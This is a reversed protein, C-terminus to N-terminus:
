AETNVRRKYEKLFLILDNFKFLKTCLEFQDVEFWIRFGFRFGSRNWSQTQFIEIAGSLFHTTVKM